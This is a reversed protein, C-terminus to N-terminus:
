ESEGTEESLKLVEDLTTVGQLAYDLAVSILPCYHQNARAAQAFAETDNLRLASAMNADMELFEFAGIRGLYGTDHCHQCGRGHFFEVTSWDKSDYSKLWNMELQDPTYKEKCRECIKRILRQAIVAGLASSVLYGPAGMDILRLASTIADNTHLTAFVLHGTIAGRLGISVTEEDRMEGILLVDPDQRLCARLVVSFGLGIKSNVQVQSIRPIRYEVPDEATIIKRQPVNLESLAGYLTTTKGSGTPGTVLIIGHPRHLQQRFRKAIHEPMGTKDLTRLGVSQDLLRMVVSEGYQVPLTSVRVDIEHGRVKTNFRGDQPLRKESIDLGAVLKLRLVLAPAIRSENLIQEQLVGDVRQRIRLEHKDPEIHIDSAGVQVADEFVSRLLKVVTAESDDSEDVDLALDFETEEYEEELQEAFSEIEKTRRYVQDFSSLIQSERAIALKVTRPSLIGELAELGALDAPDSTALTVQTENHEVVVARHRRAYVEPLLDACEPDLDVDNLNLFPAKLQRSLFGLLEEESLVGMEIFAVGLKRGTEKQHQLGAKLEDDSIVGEDVLLDGLRKTLRQVGSM